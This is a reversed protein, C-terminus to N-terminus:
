EDLKSGIASGAAIAAPNGGSYFAALGGGILSFIGASGSKSKSGQAGTTETVKTATLKALEGVINAAFDGSAQATVSSDFIGATQEGQFISALGDASGLIDEIIKKIAADDIELRETTTGETTQTGETKEPLINILTDVLTTFDAVDTSTGTHSSGDAM